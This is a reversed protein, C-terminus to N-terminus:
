QITTCYLNLSAKLVFLNLGKSWNSHRITQLHLCQLAWRHKWDSCVVCWEPKTKTKKKAGTLLKVWETVQIKLLFNNVIITVLGVPSRNTRCFNKKPSPMIKPAARGVLIITHHQIEEDYVPGLWKPLTLDNRWWARQGNHGSSCLVPHKYLLPSHKHRWTIGLYCM